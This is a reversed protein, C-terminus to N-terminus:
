KNIRQTQAVMIRSKDPQNPDDAYYWLYDNYLHSNNPRLNKCCNLINNPSCHNIQAENRASKIATIFNGSSDYKHIIKEEKKKRVRPDGYKDYPDGHYRFVYKKNISKQQGQCNLVCASHFDGSLGLAKTAESISEYSGIMSGSNLDYVDVCKQDMPVEFTYMSFSDGHRRWIYGYAQRFIGNCCLTIPTGGTGNKGISYLAERVTEYSDIFEGTLSYQDVCIENGERDLFEQTITVPYKDFPDGHYRWIYGLASQCKGKCCSSIGHNINSSLASAADSISEFSVCLEGNADYGDIARLVTRTSSDGGPTMNYGCPMLSQYHEIYYIERQNLLKILEDKTKSVIEEIQKIDFNDVGYKNMAKYLLYQNDDDINKAASRHQSWRQQISVRTQGIYKKKTKSSTIEYIWGYYCGNKYM